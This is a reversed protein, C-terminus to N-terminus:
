EVIRKSFKDWEVIRELFRSKRKRIKLVVSNLNWSSNSWEFNHVEAATGLNMDSSDAKKLNMERSKKKYKKLLAGQRVMAVSFHEAVRLVHIIEAGFDHKHFM